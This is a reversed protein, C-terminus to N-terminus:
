MSDMVVSIASGDSDFLISWFLQHLQTTHAKTSKCKHPSVGRWLLSPKIGSWFVDNGTGWSHGGSLLDKSGALGAWARTRASPAELVGLSGSVPAHTGLAMWAQSENRKWIM